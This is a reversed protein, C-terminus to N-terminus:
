ALSCIKRYGFYLLVIVVLILSKPDLNAEGHLIVNTFTERLTSLILEWGDLVIFLVAALTFCIVSWLRSLCQYRRPLHRIVRHSFGNDKIEQRNEAFFQMLLKEENIGTM